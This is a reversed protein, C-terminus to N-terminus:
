PPPDHRRRAEVSTVAKILEQETRAANLQALAEAFMAPDTARPQQRAYHRSFASRAAALQGARHYLDALMQVHEYMTRQSDAASRAVLAPGLRRGTLLLFTFTLLAIYVLAWGPPTQFLLENATPPGPAAVGGFPREIEDFAIAQGAAPAVVDRFVFRATEPNALGANTFPGASAIVILTGQRYPVRLGAWTGDDEVLLPQAGDASIRFRTTFPLTLGDPTIVSTSPSARPEATVGLQRALVLWQVSEGALVVTGHNDAVNNLFQRTPSDVVSTPEVLLVSSPLTDTSLSTLRLPQAGAASLWSYLALAGDPQASYSSGPPLPTPQTIVRLFGIVVALMSIALLLVSSRWRRM